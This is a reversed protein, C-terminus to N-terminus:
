KVEDEKSTEKRGFGRACLYEESRLLSRSIRGSVGLTEREGILHRM